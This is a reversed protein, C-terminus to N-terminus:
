EHNSRGMSLMTAWYMEHWDLTLEHALDAPCGKELLDKYYQGVLGAVSGLAAEFQEMAGHDLTNPM